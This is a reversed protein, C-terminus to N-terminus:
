NSTLIYKVIELDKLNPLNNLGRLKCGNMSFLVVNSFEELAKKENHKFEPYLNVQDLVLELAECRQKSNPCLKKLHNELESM